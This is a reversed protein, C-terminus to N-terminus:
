PRTLSLYLFRLDVILYSPGICKETIEVDQQTSLVNMDNMHYGSYIGVSYVLVIGKSQILLLM